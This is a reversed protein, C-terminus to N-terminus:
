DSAPSAADGLKRRVLDRGLSVLTRWVRADGPALCTARVLSQVALGISGWKAHTAAFSLLSRLRRDKLKALDPHQGDPGALGYRLIMSERLETQYDRAFCRRSTQGSHHRYLAVVSRLRMFQFQRSARLVLDWDDAPPLERDFKGIVEFVSRRFLATSFLVWNTLLLQHYVWGSLDSVFEECSVDSDPFHPPNVGDWILFEGYCVGVGSDARELLKVQASLKRPHWIDDHDIFAIYQGKAAGLGTNRAVSIGGNKQQILRVRSGQRRAIAATDDSSGDDVIIIEYDSYDQAFISDLTTQLFRASNYAPLIISVSPHPDTAL